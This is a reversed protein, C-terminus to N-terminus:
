YTCTPTRMTQIINLLATSHAAAEKKSKKDKKEEKVVEELKEEVPEPLGLQKILKLTEEQSVGNTSLMITETSNPAVKLEMNIPLGTNELLPQGLPMCEAIKHMNNKLYNRLLM